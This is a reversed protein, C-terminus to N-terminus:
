QPGGAAALFGTLECGPALYWVRPTFGDALKTLDIQSGPQPARVGLVSESLSWPREYTVAKSDDGLGAAKRALKIAKDLYGIEDILGLDEAERATFIGGDARRRVYTKKGAENPFTVPRPPLEERLKGKLKPRGEEVVAQFQQYANEVMDEWVQRDEVTMEKFMSGSDKVEGRKIVTMGVKHQQAWGHIDPFAAFVGISGTLTTREAVITEAPMAVYYGGSAALGGMSVLLKKPQTKKEPNGDRLEVLRHYLDDSATITGGPSNIRLVVAKVHDDRAAADIQKHIFGLFGEMIVGDLRIVAVKDKASSKGSYFHEELASSGGLLFALVLAAGGACILFFNLVFSLTFLLGLVSRGRKAPPAPPLPPTQSASSPNESM